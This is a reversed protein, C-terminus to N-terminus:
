GSAFLGYRHLKKYLTMRSIGLEIAARLRNNNNNQLASLIRQIEAEEKARALSALQDSPAVAMSCHQAPPPARFGAPLDSTDIASGACLAVAREIVNRVERINGPWDYAELARLAEATISLSSVGDRGSFLRIFQRVLPEILSRRERLPPLYFSVVGLRYFLDARFRGATAEEELMRNSAVILRAELRQARNSGVAEFVREEVVRLLKAQLDLPLADIDDLFLTGGGAEACKGTRDRDAGTFAGKVHGFLESELLNASLSACNVVLFPQGRRPSLEHIIRALATKGSGTEGGLLITTDKPAVRRVQQIVEAMKAGPVYLFDQGEGLSAVSAEAPPQASLSYRALVTLADVLYALRNLDLPRSLYDTAGQRLLAVAEVPRHTDSLVIVPVALGASDIARLLSNIADPGLDTAIHVLILSAQGIRVHEGAERPDEVVLLKLNRVSDVVERVTGILASESSVLLVSAPKM